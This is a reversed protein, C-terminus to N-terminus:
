EGWDAGRRGTARGRLRRHRVPQVRRGLGLRGQELAPLFGPGRLLQLRARKARLDGGASWPPSPVFYASFFIPKCELCLVKGAPSEFVAVEILVDLKPAPVSALLYFEFDSRTAQRKPASYRGRLCAGDDIGRIRPYCLKRPVQMEHARPRGKAKRERGGQSVNGGVGRRGEQGRVEEGSVRWHKGDDRSALVDDPLPRPSALSVWSRRNPSCPSISM